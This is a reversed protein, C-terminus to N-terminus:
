KGALAERVAERWDAGEEVEYQLDHLADGEIGLLAGAIRAKIVRARHLAKAYSDATTSTSPGDLETDFYPYYLTWSTRSGSVYVAKSAAKFAQTRNM